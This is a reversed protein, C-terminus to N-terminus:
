KGKGLRESEVQAIAAEILTPSVTQLAALRALSELGEEIKLRGEHVLDAILVPTCITRLGLTQAELLPRRDDLLLLWDSHELALNMADREGPGFAKVEDKGPTAQTLEGARALRWFERGSAFDEKLEAAVAPPYYLDFINLVHQLL